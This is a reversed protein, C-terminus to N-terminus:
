ASRALPVRAQQNLGSEQYGEAMMLLYDVAYMDSYKHFVQATQEFRKMNEPSVAQKLMYTSGTYKNVLQQAFQTGQRHTHLFENIAATTSDTGDNRNRAFRLDTQIPHNKRRHAQARSSFASLVRDDSPHIYTM